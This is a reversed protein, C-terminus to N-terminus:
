KLRSICSGIKDTYLCLLDKRNLTTLQSFGNKLGNWVCHVLRPPWKRMNASVYDGNLDKLSFARRYWAMHDIAGNLGEGM